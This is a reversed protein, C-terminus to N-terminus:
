LPMVAYHTNFDWWPRECGSCQKGWNDEFRQEVQRFCRECVGVACHDNCGKCMVIAAESCGPSFCQVEFEFQEISLDAPAILVSTV